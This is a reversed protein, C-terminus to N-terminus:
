SGGESAPHARKFLQKPIQDFNNIFGITVNRQLPDAISFIDGNDEHFLHHYINASEIAAEGQQRFGFILDIWRHLNASVYDSELAERHVRIFEKPDNKACPPLLIDDLSERSQKTDFNGGGSSLSQDFM